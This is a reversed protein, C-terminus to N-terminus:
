HRKLVMLSSTDIVGKIARINEITENLSEISPEEVIFVIEYPGAVESIDRVATLKGIETVIDSTPVVPDTKVLVFASVYGAKSTVITFKEIIGGKVLKEVRRRIAGESLKIKKAIEVYPIRSNEKLMQLIELDVKNIRM